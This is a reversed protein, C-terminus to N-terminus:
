EIWRNLMVADFCYYWEVVTWRKIYKLYVPWGTSRTNCCPYGLLIGSVQYFNALRSCELSWCSCPKLSFRFFFNFITIIISYNNFHRPVTIIGTCWWKSQFFAIFNTSSEQQILLLYLFTQKRCIAQWEHKCTKVLLAFFVRLM